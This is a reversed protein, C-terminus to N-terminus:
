TSFPAAHLCPCPSCVVSCLWPRACHLGFWFHSAGGGFPLGAGCVKAPKCGCHCCNVMRTHGRGHKGSRGGNRRKKPVSARLLPWRSACAPGDIADPLAGMGFAGCFCSGWFTPPPPFSPRHCLGGFPGCPLLQAGRWRDHPLDCSHLLPSATAAPHTPVTPWRCPRSPRPHNPLRCRCVSPRGFLTGGTPYRRQSGRENVWVRADPPLWSAVSCQAKAPSV